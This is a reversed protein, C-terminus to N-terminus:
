FRYSVIRQVNELEYEFGYDVSDLFVMMYRDTSYGQTDDIILGKDLSVSEIRGLPIEDVTSYGHIVQLWFEKGRLGDDLSEERIKASYVGDGNDIPFEKYETQLEPEIEYKELLNLLRSENALFSAFLQDYGTKYQKYIDFDDYDTITAINISEEIFDNKSLDFIIISFEVGPMANVYNIRLFACYKSKRGIMTYQEQGYTECVYQNEVKKVNLLEKYWELGLKSENLLRSYEKEQKQSYYFSVLSYLPNDQNIYPAHISNLYPSGILLRYKAISKEEIINEMFDNYYTETWHKGTVELESSQLLKTMMAINNLSQSSPPNVRKFKLNKEIGDVKLDAIIFLDIYDRNISQKIDSITISKDQNHIQETLSDLNIVGEFNIDEDTLVIKFEKDIVLKYNDDSIWEGTWYYIEPVEKIIKKDLLKKYAETERIHDLDSDERLRKYFWDSDRGVLTADLGFCIELEEYMEKIGSDDLKNQGYLISLVCALNYHSLIYSSDEVIANRFLNMAMIYNSNNYYEMGKNNYYEARDWSSLTYAPFKVAPYVEVPLLSNIKEVVIEEKEVPESESEVKIDNGIESEQLTSEEKIENTMKEKCSTLFILSIISLILVINKKM